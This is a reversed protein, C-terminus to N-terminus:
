KMEASTLGQAPPLEPREDSSFLLSNRGPRIAPVFDFRDASVRVEEDEPWKEKVVRESDPSVIRLLDIDKKREVAQFARGVPIGGSIQPGDESEYVITFFFVTLRIQNPRKHYECMAFAFRHITNKRKETM